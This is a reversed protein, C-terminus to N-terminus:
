AYVPSGASMIDRWGRATVWLRGPNCGRWIWSPEAADIPISGSHSIGRMQPRENQWDVNSGSFAAAGYVQIQRLRRLRARREHEGVAEDRRVCTRCRAVPGDIASIPRDGRGAADDADDDVM